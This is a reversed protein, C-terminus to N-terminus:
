SPAAVACGLSVSATAMRRDYTVVVVLSGNFAMARALHVADLSGLVGGWSVRRGQAQLREVADGGPIPM